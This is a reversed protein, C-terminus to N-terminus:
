GSVIVQWLLSLTVANYHLFLTFYYYFILIFIIM